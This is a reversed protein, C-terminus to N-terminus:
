SQIADSARAPIAESVVPPLNLDMVLPDSGFFECFSQIVPQIVDGIKVSRNMIRELSTVKCTPLGHPM